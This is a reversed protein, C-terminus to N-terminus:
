SIKHCICFRDRGHIDKVVAVDEFGYSSFLSACMDGFRENIEVALLGGPLLIDSAASAIARYFVLPDDDDVFLAIHPEFDLVNSSMVSKESDLVYPPNSVVADVKGMLPLGGSLVDWRFFLPRCGEENRDQMRAVDLADSSIDCAFVSAEPLMGALSWAICGSGTCMDLIRVHGRGHLCEAVNYCLQETEGRPILVSPNVNFERGCFFAKGTVYQLPEMGVLRSVYEDLRSFLGDELVYSPEIVHTYSKVGAVEECLRYVIARAEERGYASSLASVSNDIFDSLLVPM